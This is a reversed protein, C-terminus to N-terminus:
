LSTLENHPVGVKGRVPWDDIKEPNFESFLDQLAKLDGRFIADPILDSIVIDCAFKQEHAQIYLGYAEHPRGLYRACAGQNPHRTLSWSFTFLYCVQSARIWRKPVKFSDFNNEPGSGIDPPSRMLMAKIAEARSHYVVDTGNKHLPYIVCWIPDRLHLLVFTAADPASQSELQMAYGVTLQDGLNAVDESNVDLKLSHCLVWFLTWSLRYDLKHPTFCRPALTDALSYDHDQFLRLLHLMPDGHNGFSGVDMDDKIEAYWPPPNTAAMEIEGGENADDKAALESSAVEDYLEIATAVPSEMPCSYWYHLAFAQKWNLGETLQVRDVQLFPDASKSSAGYTAEGALLCYIKRYEEDIFVDTGSKMWIEWQSWMTDRFKKDGGIQSLLTALHFDGADMAEHCAREIQNGTLLAFVRSIPSAASDLMVQEVDPAVATQLWDGVKMKRRLTSIWEKKTPDIDSPVDLPIEDFLASALRWLSAEFSTDEQPFLAAFPQFTLSSKRIIQPVGPASTDRNVETEVM